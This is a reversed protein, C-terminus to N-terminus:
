ILFVIFSNNMSSLAKILPCASITVHLAHYPFHTAHMPVLLVKIIKILIVSM